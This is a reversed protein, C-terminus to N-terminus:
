RMMAYELREQEKKKATETKNMEALVKDRKSVLQSRKQLNAKVADDFRDNIREAKRSGPAEKDLIHGWRKDFAKKEERYEVDLHQIELALDHQEKDLKDYKAKDQGSPSGGGGGGGSRGSRGGGGSSGGM